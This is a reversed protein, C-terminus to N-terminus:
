RLAHSIESIMARLGESMPERVSAEYPYFVGVCLDGNMLGEVYAQRVFSEQAFAGGGQRLGDLWLGGQCLGGLGFGGLAFDGSM